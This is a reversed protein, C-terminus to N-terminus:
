IIQSVIGYRLVKINSVEKYNTLKIHLYIYTLNTQLYDLAEPIHIM